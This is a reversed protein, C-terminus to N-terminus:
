VDDRDGKDVPTFRGDMFEGHPRVWVDDEARYVVLPSLDHERRAVAVIIYTGGKRHRWWTGERPENPLPELDELPM